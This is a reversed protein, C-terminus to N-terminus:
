LEPQVAGDVSLCADEKKACVRTCGRYKCVDSTPFTSCMAPRNEYNTCNRTKPDFYKCTYHYLVHDAKKGPNNKCTKDSRIFIVMDAIKQIEEVWYHTKYGGNSGEAWRRYKVTRMYYPPKGLGILKKWWAMQMPSVPLTFDECCHGTCRSIEQM